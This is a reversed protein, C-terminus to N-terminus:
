HKLKSLRCHAALKHIKISQNDLRIAIGKSQSELPIPWDLRHKM